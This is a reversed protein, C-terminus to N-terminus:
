KESGVPQAAQREKQVRQYAENVRALKRTALDKMEAPIDTSHFKDPHWYNVKRHYAENLEEDTCDPHVELTEYAELTTLSTASPQSPNKAMYEKLASIYVGLM